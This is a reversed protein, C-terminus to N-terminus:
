LKGLMPHLSHTIDKGGALDERKGLHQRADSLLKLLDAENMTKVNALRDKIASPVDASLHQYLGNVASEVLQGANTDKVFNRRVAVVARMVMTAYSEADRDPLRTLAQVADREEKFEAPSFGGDALKQYAKRLRQQAELKPMRNLLNVGEETVEASLKAGK